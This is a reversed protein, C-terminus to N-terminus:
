HCPIKLGGVFNEGDITNSPPTNKSDRLSPDPKENQSFIIYPAMLVIRVFSSGSKSHINKGYGSAKIVSSLNLILRM